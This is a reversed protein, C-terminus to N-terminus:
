NGQIIEKMDALTDYEELLKRSAAQIDTTM